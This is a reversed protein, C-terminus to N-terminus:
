FRFREVDKAGSVGDITYTFRARNTGRPAFDATGVATLAVSSPDFALSWPPGQTRYVTGSFRLAGQSDRTWAGSPVVFWTGRRDSDYTMWVLFLKEASQLVNLGWGSEAPNWWLDAFNDHPRASGTSPLASVIFHVPGVLLTPGLTGPPPNVVLQADYEGSPLRGLTFEESYGLISGCDPNGFGRDVQVTILNAAQSVKVSEPNTCGTHTYRLRVTDLPSPAAPDLSLGSQAWAGLAAAAVLIGGLWRRLGRINTRAM